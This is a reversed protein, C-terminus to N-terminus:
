CPVSFSPALAFHQTSVEVPVKQWLDRTFFDTVHTSSLWYHDDMFDALARAKAKILDTNEQWPICGHQAHCVETAVLPHMPLFGMTNASTVSTAEGLAISSTLTLLAWCWIATSTCFRVILHSFIFYKATTVGLKWCPRGSLVSPPLIKDIARRWCSLKLAKFDCDQKLGRLTAAAGVHVCRWFVQRSHNWCGNAPVMAQLDRVQLKWHTFSAQVYSESQARVQHQLRSMRRPRFTGGLVCFPLDRATTEGQSKGASSDLHSHEFISSLSPTM